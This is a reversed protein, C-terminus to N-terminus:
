GIGLELGTDITRLPGNMMVLSDERVREMATPPLPAMGPLNLPYPIKILYEALSFSRLDFFVRGPLNIIGAPARITKVDEKWSKM